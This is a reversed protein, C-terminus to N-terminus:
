YIVIYNYIAGEKNMQDRASENSYWSVSNGSWTLYIRHLDDSGSGYIPFTEAETTGNIALLNSRSGFTDHVVNQILVLKPVGDFTLTCPNSSGYFGKGDYSSKVIKAGGM